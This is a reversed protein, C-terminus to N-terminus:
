YTQTNSTTPSTVNTPQVSNVAATNQQEKDDHGQVARRLAEIVQGYSQVFGNYQESIVRYADATTEGLQVATDFQPGGLQAQTINGHSQLDSPTGDGSTFADLNDELIKLIRKAETTDIESKGSPGAGM